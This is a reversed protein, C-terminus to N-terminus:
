FYWMFEEVIDEAYWLVEEFLVAFVTTSLIILVIYGLVKLIVGVLAAIGVGKARKPYERHWSLYLVLGLFPEFFSFINLLISPIDFPNSQVNSQPPVAPQVYTAQQPPQYPAPPNYEAQKPAKVENPNGCYPCFKSASDFEKGCKNCIM